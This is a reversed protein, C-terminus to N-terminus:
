WSLLRRAIAANENPRPWWYRVKQRIISAMRTQECECRGVKCWNAWHECNNLIMHYDGVGLTQRAREVVLDPEYCHSSHYLVLNFWKGRGLFEEMSTIRIRVNDTGKVYHAVQWDGVHIGFHRYGLRPATVVDGPLPMGGYAMPDHWRPDDPTDYEARNYCTPLLDVLM